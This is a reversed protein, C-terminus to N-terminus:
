FTLIVGIDKREEDRERERGRYYIDRGRLSGLQANGGDRKRMEIGVVFVYLHGLNELLKKCFDRLFIVIKYGNNGLISAM